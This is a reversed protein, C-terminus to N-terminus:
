QPLRRLEDALKTLLQDAQQEFADDDSLDGYLKCGLILAVPGSWIRTDKMGPEMVVALMKAGTKSHQAYQFEKRCNDAENDSGVKDVYRQTVCVLVFM